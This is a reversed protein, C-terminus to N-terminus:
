LTTCVSFWTQQFLMKKDPEDDGWKNVASNKKRLICIGNSVLNWDFPTEVFAGKGFPSRAIFLFLLYLTCKNHIRIIYSFCNTMNWLKDRSFQKSVNPVQMCRRRRCISPLHLSVPAIHTHSSSHYTDDELLTFLKHPMLWLLPRCLM